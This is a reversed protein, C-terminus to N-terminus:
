SSRTPRNQPKQEQHRKSKREKPNSSSQAMVQYIQSFTNQLSRFQLNSFNDFFFRDFSMSIDAEIISEPTKLVSVPETEPFEYFENNPNTTNIKNEECSM